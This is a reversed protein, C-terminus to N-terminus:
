TSSTEAKGATATDTHGCTPCIGDPPGAPLLQAKIDPVFLEWLAPKDEFYAVVDDYADGFFARDYDDTAATLKDGVEETEAELQTRQTEWVLTALRHADLQEETPNEDDLSPRPRKVTALKEALVQRLVWIRLEADNMATRRTRTLPTVTISDTVQYPEPTVTEAALEMLRKSMANHSAPAKAM